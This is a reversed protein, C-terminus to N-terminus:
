ETEGVLDGEVTALDTDLDLGVGVAFGEYTKSQFLVRAVVEAYLLCWLLSSSSM